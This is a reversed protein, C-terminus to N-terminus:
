HNEHKAAYETPTMGFHRRFVTSFHSQNSFGVDYAVQTVNIKNERILQAARELRLNRIFDSTSIGTMEKMKRHLQARSIGVDQTLAEVNFTSDSIHENVSRMIREMLQEDNGKVEKYEVKDEQKQAGSFKGKLRRVNDVLNDIRVHLEDISFPKELYADAGYRLGAIRDAVESKSTLLIVPVDSVQTNGKIAKLLSIGDMEPMVIDSVVLDYDDTLLAQLAEKGNAFRSIRYWSRLESEIYRTLDDDDDVVMVRLNRNAYSPRKEHKAEQVEPGLDIEEPKLHDKGLPLTVELCAGQRGDTRNYAKITGGHLKVIARSLNLGIGTGEMQLEQANRGQYFREFLRETHEDKFGVGSDVLRIVAQRDDHSVSYRIEGGDPTYKFANSLLNSLVKEFNQRDVWVRVEPDAHDFAFTIGRQHANYQYMSCIGGITKVLDTERCHLRMQNKDIRREDLIQNVLLLLRQANRDITDIYQQNDADQTREKLKQLPGLILTLPSRIDHTANILFRMKQEETDIRRRRDIYYLVFALLGLALLGYLLYAWTTAYWPNRVRVTIVKTQRSTAGNNMARVEITYTGPKIENFSIANAGETTSTWETAGNVRYQFVINDTNRYNLLSFEMTFNNEDYGVEFRDGLASREKGNVIFHTLFVEGMQVGSGKVDHPRFATIGENTAFCLRGDALTAQGGVVYERSLLGNGNIHGIFKRHRHDYQWIGNITSLWLDGTADESIGCILASGMDDSQPFRQLRNAKRDYLYLGQTTGILMDGNRRECLASVLTGDLLVDWGCIRFNGDAPNMCSLGNTTGIWLLGRSDLCLSKVWDNCLRGKRKDSHNMSYSRTQGTLTNYVALGNGYDSVFITGEGDDTICNVGWGKLQVALRSSGTAPTYAYLSNETGLWYGHRRDRYITNPGEPSPVRGQLRGDHTFHYVGSKQVTCWVGGEEDPAISSISSGLRVDYDKFTWSTFANRDQNLQLLGKKYCSVWLNHDKDEFVDNVNSTALDFRANNSMVQELQRRGKRIVMLGRGSTCLYLDGKSSRMGKRISYQKDLASLDYGADTIQGSADDYRMIGYMCVLLMGGQTRICSMVPGAQLAFDRSSVPRLNNVKWRSIVANHSGRWLNHRGDEFLKSAFEDSSTRTFERLRVVQETGAKIACIGYGATGLLIDGDATEFISEVRPQIRDPFTYRRFSNTDYLYQALGRNTGVWLRRRSDVLFTIVESNPLSTTDKADAYYNSFRYGDFKNLGYETGVWIYGYADQTICDISSGSLHNETTYLRSNDAHTLVVLLVSTLVFFLPRLAKMM